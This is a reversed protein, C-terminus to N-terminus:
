YYNTELLGNAIMTGNIFPALSSGVISQYRGSEMVIVVVPVRGAAPGSADGSTAAAATQSPVVALGLAVLLALVGGARALRSALFSRHGRGGAVAPPWSDSRARVAWDGRTIGGSNRRPPM